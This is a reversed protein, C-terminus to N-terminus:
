SLLFESKCCEVRETDWSCKDKNTRGTYIGTGYERCLSGGNKLLGECGTWKCDSNSSVVFLTGDFVIQEMVAM